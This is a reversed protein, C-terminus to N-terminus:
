EGGGLFDALSGAAIIDAELQAVADKLEQPVADEFDHFPSLGVGGNVLTGLYNNGLADLVYFTSVADFVANDLKKLISTLVVSGYETSAYWDSDVGIIMCAGTEQCLAASGLGVPGAVPLVIDAGEDVLNQAFTRGDDLSEFNGTFLGDQAEVDWGLVVVDTGNQANYYDVGQTLGNMFITVTPYAIGGFTGVVGTETMGASVYGALFAAEDTQFTVGKV